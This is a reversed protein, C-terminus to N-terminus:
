KRKKKDKAKKRQRRKLEEARMKTRAYHGTTPYRVLRAKIVDPLMEAEEATYTKGTYPDM